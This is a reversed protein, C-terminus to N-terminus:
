KSATKPKPAPKAKPAPRPKDYKAVLARAADLQEREAEKEAQAKVNLRSVKAKAEIEAQRKAEAELAKVRQLNEAATEYFPQLTDGIRHWRVKHGNVFEFHRIGGMACTRRAIDASVPGAVGDVWSLGNWTINRGSGRALIYLKEAQFAAMHTLPLPM